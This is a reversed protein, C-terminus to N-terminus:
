PAPEPDIAGDVVGADVGDVDVAAADVVGADYGACLPAGVFSIEMESEAFEWHNFTGSAVQSRPCCNSNDSCHSIVTNGEFYVMTAVVTLCRGDRSVLKITCPDGSGTTWGSGTNRQITVSDGSGRGTCPGEVVEVAAIDDYYHTHIRLTPSFPDLHGPCVTDEGCSSLCLVLGVVALHRGM